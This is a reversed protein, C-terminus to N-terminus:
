SPAAESVMVDIEATGLQQGSVTRVQTQGHRGPRGSKERAEMVGDAVLTQGITFPARQRTRMSLPVRGGAWRRVPEHLLGVIASGQGIVCDFGAEQAVRDDLHLPDPNDLAVSLRALMLRDVEGTVHSPLAGDAAPEATTAGPGAATLDPDAAGGPEAPLAPDPTGPRNEIFTVRWRCVLAGAHRFDTCLRLFQRTNGDRGPREWVAEVGTEGEVEDEETVPRGTAAVDIGLNLTRGWTFGLETVLSEAPVTLFFGFMAVPVPRAAYGAERAKAASILVPDEIGLARAYNVVSLREGLVFRVPQFTRGEAERLRM